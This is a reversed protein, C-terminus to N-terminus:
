MCVHMTLHMLKIGILMGCTYVSVYVQVYTNMVKYVCIICLVRVYFSATEPIFGCADKHSSLTLCCM